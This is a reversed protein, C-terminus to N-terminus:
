QQIGAYQQNSFSQDLGSSSQTPQPSPAIGASMGPSLLIDYNLPQPSPMNRPREADELNAIRQSLNAIMACLEKYSDRRQIIEELLKDSLQAVLSSVRVRNTVKDASISSM